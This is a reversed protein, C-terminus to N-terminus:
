IKTYWLSEYFTIVKYLLQLEGYVVTVFVFEYPGDVITLRMLAVITEREEGKIVWDENLQM